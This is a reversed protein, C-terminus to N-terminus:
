GRGEGGREERGGGPDSRASRAAAEEEEAIRRARAAAEGPKPVAPVGQAPYGQGGPVAPVPGGQDAGQDGEGTAQTAATVARAAEAAGAQAEAAWQGPSESRPAALIVGVRVDTGGQDLGATRRDVDVLRAHAQALSAMGAAASRGGWADPGDRVLRDLLQWLRASRRRHDSLLRANAREAPSSHVAGRDGNREGVAAGNSDRAVTSVDGSSVYGGCDIGIGDRETGSHEAGGSGRAIGARRMRSRITGEPVGYERAIWTPSRGDKWAATVEDWPVHDHKRPAPM